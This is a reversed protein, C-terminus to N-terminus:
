RRRNGGALIMAVRLFINIIDMYIAIASAVPDFQRQGYMPVVEAERIIRQTKYLLLGSFLLLGGYVSMSYLGAGLATTPPFFMSGLSAAFVAGLGIALPGAMNMFKDSPACVAITSLAGTIGATYWAARIIIPGGLLCIPAIVAGLIATHGLWALQKVGFGPEYPISQVLMGSGIMAAICAAISLFSTKGVFNLLAPTRLTATAAAATAVVSGAVYLYTTHVRDRVYQPWLVAQDVISAQNSLGLGYYCLAGLGLAAGGAVAGRGVTFATEGAPQTIQEQLSRREALREKFGSRGGGTFKRLPQFRAAHAPPASQRLLARAAPTISVQCLRSVLM